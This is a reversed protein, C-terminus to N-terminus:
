KCVLGSGELAVFGLPQEMFVEEELDGHLFANKIDFQHPSWHCITTTAFLLCVITMKAVLSLTDRYDPLLGSHIM